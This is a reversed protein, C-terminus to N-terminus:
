SRIQRILKVLMENVAHVTERLDRLYRNVTFKRVFYKGAYKSTKMNQLM